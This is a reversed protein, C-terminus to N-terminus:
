VMLRIISWVEKLVVRIERSSIKTLVWYFALRNKISRNFGYCTCIIERECGYVSAYHNEGGMMFDYISAGQAISEKIMENISLFGLSLRKIDPDFSGQYAYVTNNFIFNYEASIVKDDLVYMLFMLRNQEYLWHMLDHHYDTFRQSIFASTATLHEFRRM